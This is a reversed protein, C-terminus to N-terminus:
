THPSSAMGILLPPPKPPGAPDRTVYSLKHVQERTVSSTAGASPKPPPPKVSARTPCAPPQGEPRPRGIPIAPPPKAKAIFGDSAFSDASLKASTSLIDPVKRPIDNRSVVPDYVPIKHSPHKPKTPM